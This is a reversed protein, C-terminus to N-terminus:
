QKRREKLHFNHCIKCERGLHSDKRKVLNPEKLPHGKPCHTKLKQWLGGNGRQSNEKQTVAELHAPNVCARNRCLHDLQLNDPIEDKFLEYSIRHALLLKGNLGFQGYGRSKASKWIWCNGVQEIKTIFRILTKLDFEIM